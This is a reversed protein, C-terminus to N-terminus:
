LNTHKLMSSAGSGVWHKLMSSAGFGVWWSQKNAM